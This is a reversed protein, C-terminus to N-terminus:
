FKTAVLCPYYIQIEKLVCSREILVANFIQAEVRRHRPLIYEAAGLGYLAALRLQEIRVNVYLRHHEVAAEICHIHAKEVAHGQVRVAGAGTRHLYLAQADKVLPDDEEAALAVGLNEGGLHPYVAHVPLQQLLAIQGGGNYLSNIGDDQVGLQHLAALVAAAVAVHTLNGGAYALAEAALQGHAVLVAAGEDRQALEGDDTQLPIGLQQDGHVVVAHGVLVAGAAAAGALIGALQELVDAEGDILEKGGVAQVVGTVVLAGLLM